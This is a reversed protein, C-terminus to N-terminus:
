DVPMADSNAVKTVKKKVRAKASKSLHRRLPAQYTAGKDTLDGLPEMSLTIKMYPTQKQKLYNKGELAQLINATREEEAVQSQQKAPELDELCGIENYQHLGILRASKSSALIKLYERKIIEVVSILRPALDAGRDSKPPPEIKAEILDTSGNLLHPLGPPLTHLILTGQTQKEFFDLAFSVWNQIKGHSTIRIFHPSNADQAEVTVGQNPEDM